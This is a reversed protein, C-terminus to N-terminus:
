YQAADQTHGRIRIIPPEGSMDQINQLLRKSLKNSGEIDGLYDVIYCFEISLSVITKSIPVASSALTTERAVVLTCSSLTSLLLLLLCLVSSYM